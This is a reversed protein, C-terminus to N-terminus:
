PGGSGETPPPRVLTNARAAIWWRGGEKVMVYLAVMAPDSGLLEGKASASMATKHVIAVDHRVFVLDDISYRAYQDRLPGALGVRNAELLSEWGSVRVGLATTVSANSVFHEVSLEPDKTNFGTEVDSIVGAIAAVDDAHDTADEVNPRYPM